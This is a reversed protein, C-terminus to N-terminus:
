FSDTLLRNQVEFTRRPDNDVIMLAVQQSILYTLYFEMNEKGKKQQKLYLSHDQNIYIIGGESFAPPEDKGCHELTCTVGVGGIKIRRAVMTKGRLDKVRVKKPPMPDKEEQIEGEESEGFDMKGGNKGLPLNMADRGKDTEESIEPAFKQSNKQDSSEDIEGTPSMIYPTIDPNKRIAKGMRSLTDKLTADAKQNEKQLHLEKSQKIVKKLEQKMIRIFAEYEPSDMIFRSRDSTIPLFDASVRGKLHHSIVADLGFNERTIVIGRVVCEIGSVGNKKLRFNPIIIEGQVPGYSTLANIPFRKGAIFTPELQKKNLFISFHPANLPLRERIFREIESLSFIKKLNELIVTTGNGLMPNFCQKELPITWHEAELWHNKDFVVEASFGDKQTHIKFCDCATLVAFKGIGFQGIRPRKYKPSVPSYKKNQSGITFFERIGGEDMGSGDDRIKLCNEDIEIWVRAADADYANSILERLLELSEGYLKEGITIIHSKDFTIQLESDSIKTM